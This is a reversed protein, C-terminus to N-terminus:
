HYSMEHRCHTCIVKTRDVSGVPLTKDKRWKSESKSKLGSHKEGFAFGAEEEESERELEETVRQILVVPAVSPRLDFM